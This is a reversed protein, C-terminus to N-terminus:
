FYAGTNFENTQLGDYRTFNEINIISDEAITAMTLGKNSSLWFNNKNDPLIGYIVNNSLGQEVTFHRIRKSRVNYSKLGNGNTGVWLIGEQYLLSKIRDSIEYIKTIEDTRTNLLYLGEAETGIWLEDKGGSEVTRIGSSFVNN